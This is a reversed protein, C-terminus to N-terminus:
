DPTLSIRWRSERDLLRLKFSSFGPGNTQNEVKCHLRKPLSDTERESVFQWPFKSSGPWLRWETRLICHRDCAFHRLIDLPVNWHGLSDKLYSPIGVTNGDMGRFNKRRLLVPFYRLKAPSLLSFVAMPWPWRLLYSLVSRLEKGLSRRACKFMQLKRFINPLCQSSCFIQRKSTMPM